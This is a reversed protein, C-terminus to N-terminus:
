GPAHESLEAMIRRLDEAAQTLSHDLAALDDLLEGDPTRRRLLELRLRAVTLEQVPGDHLRGALQRREESEMSEEAHTPALAM